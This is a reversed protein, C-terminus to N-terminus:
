ASCGAPGVGPREAAEVGGVKALEVVLAPRYGALALVATAAVNSGPGSRRRTWDPGAPSRVPGPGRRSGASRRPERRGERRAHDQVRAQEHIRALAAEGIGELRLSVPLRLAGLAAMTTVEREALRARQGRTIGAVLSLHDAARRREACAQKWECVGCHEVPEPYTDPPCPKGSREM